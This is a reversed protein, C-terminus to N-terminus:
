EAAAEDSQTLFNGVTNFVREKLGAEVHCMHGGGPFTVWRVRPILEFYPIQAVDMSTDFEGNYVLTPATIQALRPISTWSLLSGNRVLLSPGLMTSYVTQDESLHQLAADMEAPFPVERCLYRQLYVMLAAQCEPHDHEGRDWYERLVRQTDSPLEAVRVRESELILDGSALGSALVLRRLGRPRSAAFAGGLMGGWSHGLLHFGAGERLRLIDLLNDLEAVFLSECWFARDGAAQPLHTSAACGIQDYFVVPLGYRPWLASLTLNSEHGAGPGGHLVVLCPAGCQLDGFVKYYTHCPSPIDNRGALLREPITFRITGEKTPTQDM